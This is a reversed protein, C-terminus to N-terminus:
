YSYVENGMITAGSEHQHKRVSASIEKGDLYVRVDQSGGGNMGRVAASMAAFVGEYVAEQMQQVNMVGTKGGAATAMVEPGREGAWILSGKDFIGGDAAFKVSFSKPYKFTKGLASVEGWNVTLKPVSINLKTSLKANSSWWKKASNWASVVKDKISGISPTYSLSSRSKNWWNKATTWASSLKSSISGISPTYSLNSRNKSWWTKATEWASKLKEWIKGISPTYTSLSGRKDKWWTKASEWASSLKSAINGISPTYSKLAEKKEDWWTKASSWMSSLRDKISDIGMASTIGEIIKKGISSPKVVAEVIDLYEIDFMETFKEAWSMDLGLGEFLGDFFGGFFENINGKLNEIKENFWDSIGKFLETIDPLIRRLLESPTFILFLAEWVSDIDLADKLWAFASKLGEWIGKGIDGIWNVGGRIASGIKEGVTHGIESFDYEVFALTIGAVVAAAIAIYPAATALAAAGASLAGPIGAIATSLKPFAAALASIFGGEKALSIFAGLDGIFKSGKVAKWAKSLENSAIAVAGIATALGTIAVTASEMDTVGGEEIVTKLSVTATVGLGIALGTPGWMKYLLYSSAAGILVGELYDLITGEEGMFDGFADEMLKFQLSITIATAALKKINKVVGHFKDGLDLAEGLQGLLKAITWAGLAAGITQIQPMWDTLVSRLKEKIEDVKNNVGDLISQDWLSEIDLGSFGGGGSGGAGGSGGSGGGSASSPSIVNLEDIGISANKLAKAAETAGNLADTVGNTNEVADMAGSSYDNWGDSIDQIEIGFFAAVWHVAETLLEVFAQVYPMVKVLIPLFLSGIAQALTKTQQAFTRMVGEATEMERAYTGVVGKRQAQDVLELYRLYSKQAETANSLSIELGHNAATQELTAEVITFGARRIPEVEGAIASRVAAMAGDAGDLTEYVNNFAAWIDYALETYGIGMERADQRDVGFGILMSGAMAANEMFTQKNINLAETIQTIKEYYIDAQEGFTNGFQYKVGDWQSAMHIYETVKQIVGRMADAIGRIIEVFSAMNLATTDVSDDLTKVGASAKRAGSNIASFGAKISTMKESLPGLKSNLLAVKEAFADITDKDLSTTVDGLKKLSNIMTNLGGAKIASLPAVVEAVRQLQPAIKELNINSVAKLAEPLKKLSNSLSAVSGVGKLKEISNALTRLANSAQHVNPLSKLASSLNNLNNSVTKFSGNKKLGELSKALADIGKAADTSSSEIEISISDITVGM